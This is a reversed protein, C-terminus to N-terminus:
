MGRFKAFCTRFSEKKKKLSSSVSAIFQFPSASAGQSSARPAQKELRVTDEEGDQVKEKTSVEM